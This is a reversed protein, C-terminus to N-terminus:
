PAPPPLPLSTTSKISELVISSRVHQVGPVRMLHDMLFRSFRRLDPAVVRLLYDADGTTMACELIEPAAAVAEHFDTAPNRGHKELTVSVLATVGLGVAAPDIRATYGQLIGAEELRQVRRSCQSPSLHVVESLAVNTLRGDEMLATLIRRDFADLDIIPPNM